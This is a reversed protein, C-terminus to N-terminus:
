NKNSIMKQFSFRAVLMLLMVYVLQFGIYLIWPFEVTGSRFAFQLQNKFGEYNAVFQIKEYLFVGWLLLNALLCLATIHKLYPLLYLKKIHKREMGLYRFIQIRQSDHKMREIWHHFSLLISVAFLFLIFISTLFLTNIFRQRAQEKEERKMQFIVRSDQNIESMRKDTIEYTIENNGYAMVLTSVKPREGLFREMFAGSVLIDGPMLFDRSEQFYHDFSKLVSGCRLIDTTVGMKIQIMEGNTLGAKAQEGMVHYSNVGFNGMYTITGTKSVVLDPLYVLGEKGDLFNEWNAKGLGNNAYYDFVEKEDPLVVLRGPMGAKHIAEDSDAMLKRYADQECGNWTFWLKEQNIEEVITFTDVKEISDLQHIKDIQEKNLGAPYSAEWIYDYQSASVTVLYEWYKEYSLLFGCSMVLVSLFCFIGEYVEQKRYLARECNFFAKWNLNRKLRKHRHVTYYRTLSKGKPIVPIKKMLFLPYANGLLFFLFSFIGATLFLMPSYSIQLEGYGLRQYFFLIICFIPMAAFCGALFSPIWVLIGQMMWVIKLMRRDAGLLRMVQLEYQKKHFVVALTLLIFFETLLFTLVFVFGHELYYSLGGEEPYALRNYMLRVGSRISFLEKLEQMEEENQHISDFFLHCMQETKATDDSIIAGCLLAGDTDWYETYSQLIGSLYYEHEKKVLQGTTSDISEVEFVVREGIHFPIGMYAMLSSEMAIEEASDPLKGEKLHINGLSLMDEDMTGIYGAILDEKFITGYIKMEGSELLAKHQILATKVDDTVRFAAGRYRGYAQFRAADNTKKLCGMLLFVTLLLMSCLSISIYLPRLKRKRGQTALKWIIGM